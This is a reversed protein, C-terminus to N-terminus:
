GSGEKLRSPDHEVQVERRGMHAQQDQAVARELQSLREDGDRSRQLDFALKLIRVVANTRNNSPPESLTDYLVTELVGLLDDKTELGDIAFTEAIAAQQRRRQGGLQRANAAEDASAPDHHFCRDSDNVPYALCPTGDSKKAACNSSAM